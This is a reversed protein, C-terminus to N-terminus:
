LAVLSKWGPPFHREIKPSLFSPGKAGDDWDCLLLETQFEARGNDKALFLDAWLKQSARSSTAPQINKGIPPLLINGSLGTVQFFLCTGPNSSRKRFSPCMARGHPYLPCWGPNTTSSCSIHQSYETWCSVLSWINAAAWQHSRLWVAESGQKGTQM